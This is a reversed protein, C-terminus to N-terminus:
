KKKGGWSAGAVLLREAQEAPVAKSFLFGQGHECELERLRAKQDMTEIGEVTVKMRLTHALTVITRIIESRLRDTGIGSVFSRDIKLGDIPFSHLCSLSSYGTGFDDLYIRLNRRKLEGFVWRLAESDEMIISETVEMVLSNPAVPSSELAADIEPLLDADAFQARSLNINVFLPPDQPFAAQWASVQRVVDPLLNRFIPQLLGTEELVDIFSGAPVLGRKPHTWRLLAEFGVIAGKALSVIPQYHMGFEGREVAHRLESELLLRSIVVKHMGTEFVEHRSGGMAKARHLAIDANRLYAEPRQCCAASTTIGISAAVFLEQGALEIPERVCEQLRVAVEFAQRIEVIDELLVAFRDAGFRALTDAARLLGRLRDAIVKIL